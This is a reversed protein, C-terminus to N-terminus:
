AKEVSGEEKEEREQPSHPTSFDWVEFLDRRFCLLECQERDTENDSDTGSCCREQWCTLWLGANLSRGPFAEKKRMKECLFRPHLLVRITPHAARELALKTSSYALLNTGVSSIKTFYLRTVYQSTNIFPIAGIVMKYGDALEIWLYRTIWFLFNFTRTVWGFIKMAM